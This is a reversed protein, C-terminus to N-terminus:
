ADDEDGELVEHLYVERLYDAASSVKAAAHEVLGRQGRAGYKKVFDACEAGLTIASVELDRLDTVASM